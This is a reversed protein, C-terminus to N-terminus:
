GPLSSANLSVIVLYDDRAEFNGQTNQPVTLPDSLLILILDHSLGTVYAGRLLVLLGGSCPISVGLGCYYGIM